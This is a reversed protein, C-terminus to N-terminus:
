ERLLRELSQAAAQRRQWEPDLLADIVEPIAAKDGVAIKELAGAVARRVRQEPDDLRKMLIPIAAVADCGIAGLALAASERVHWEDDDLVRLLQPMSPKSAPGIAALATAAARRVHWEEDGLADSLAGVAPKSAPGPVALAEAAPRRVHWEEDHLAAILAPVADAGAPGTTTLAVAAAKRVRWEEDTLAEILAPIAATKAGAAQALAIAAQERQRWDGGALAQALSLVNPEVGETSPVADALSPQDEAAIAAHIELSSAALVALGGLLAVWLMEARGLRVAHSVGSSVLRQVRRGLSSRLNVVGIGVRESPCCGLRQAIDVLRRAYAQRQGVCSVVINDCAEENTQEMEGALKRMLPQFVCLAGVLRCLLSWLCDRRWLHALEHAFVQADAMDPHAQPLLIAPRFTGILLPSAVAPSVAVRPAKLGMRGAMEDCMAIAEQSAPGAQALRRRARLCDCGLRALLLTAGAIWCVSLLSYLVPLSPRMRSHPVDLVVQISDPAETPVRAGVRVSYSGPDASAPPSEGVSMSASAAPSGQPISVDLLDLGCLGGALPCILVALLTGRLVASRLAASRRRLFGCAALGLCILLTSQFLTRAAWAVVCAAPEAYKVALDMM